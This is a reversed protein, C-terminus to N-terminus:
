SMLALILSPHICVTFQRYEKKTWGLSESLSYGGRGPRGVEGDPKPILTPDHQDDEESDVDEESDERNMKDHEDSGENMGDYEDSDEHFEEEGEDLDEEDREIDDDHDEGEDSADTEHGVMNDEDEQRDSDDDDDNNDSKEFDVDVNGGNDSAAASRSRTRSPHSRTRSPPHTAHARRFIRVRDDSHSIRRDISEPNHGTGLSTRSSRQVPHRQSSRETADKQSKVKGSAMHNTGERQTKNGSSM